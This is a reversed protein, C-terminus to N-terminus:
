FQIKFTSKLMYAWFFVLSWDFDWFHVSLSMSLWDTKLMKVNMRRWPLRLLQFMPPQSFTPFVPPEKQTVLSVWMMEGWNSVRWTKNSPWGYFSCSKKNPNDTQSFKEQRWFLFPCWGRIFHVSRSGHSVVLCFSESQNFKCRGAQSKLAM